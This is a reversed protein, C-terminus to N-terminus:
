SFPRIVLNVLTKIAVHPSVVGLSMMIVYNSSFKATKLPFVPWVGNIHELEGEEYYDLIAPLWKTTQAM